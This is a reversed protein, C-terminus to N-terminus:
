SAKCGHGQEESAASGGNRIGVANARATRTGDHVGVTIEQCPDRKKAEDGDPEVVGGFHCGQDIMDHNGVKERSKWGAGMGLKDGQGQREGQYRSEVASRGTDKRQHVNM